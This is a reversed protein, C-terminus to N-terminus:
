ASRSDAAQSSDPLSENLAQSQQPKAKAGPDSNTDASARSRWKRILLRVPWFLVVAIAMFIGLLLGWLAGLLSIGAGPGVYAIAMAPWSMFLFASVLLKFMRM